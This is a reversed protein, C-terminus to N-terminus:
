FQAEVRAVIREWDCKSIGIFSDTEPQSIMVRYDEPPGVVYVNIRISGDFLAFVLDDSKQTNDAM